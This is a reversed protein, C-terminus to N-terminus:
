AAFGRLPLDAARQLWNDASYRCTGDILHLTYAQRSRASRNAGSYHPLKGDLLILTGQPAELAAHGRGPWPTADLTETM